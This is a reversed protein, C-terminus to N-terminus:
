GWVVETTEYNLMGSDTYTNDNDWARVAEVPNLFGKTAIGCKKCACFYLIHEGYQSDFEASYMMPEHCCHNVKHEYYPKCTAIIPKGGGGRIEHPTALFEFNSDSSNCDIEDVVEGNLCLKLAGVRKYTM